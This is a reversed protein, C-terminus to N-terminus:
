RAPERLSTMGGPAPITLAFPSPEHPRGPRACTINTPTGFLWPKTHFGTPSGPDTIRGAPRTTRKWGAATRPGRARCGFKFSSGGRCGNIRGTGLHAPCTTCRRPPFSSSLKRRTITIALTVPTIALMAPTIVVINCAATTSVRIMNAAAEYARHLGAPTTAAARTFASSALTAMATRRASRSTCGPTPRL